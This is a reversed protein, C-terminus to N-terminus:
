CSGEVLFLKRKEILKIFRLLVTKYGKPIERESSKYCYMIGHWTEGFSGNSDRDFCCVCAHYSFSTRNKMPIEIMLGAPCPLEECPRAVERAGYRGVTVVAADQGM